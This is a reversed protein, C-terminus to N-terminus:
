GSERVRERQWLLMALIGCLVGALSLGIPIWRNIHASDVILSALVFGLCALQAAPM